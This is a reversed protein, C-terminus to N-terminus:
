EDGGRVSVDLDDVSAVQEGTLFEVAAVKESPTAAEIEEEITEAIAEAGAKTLGSAITVEFREDDDVWLNSGGTAEDFVGSIVVRFNDDGEHHKGAKLQTPMTVLGFCLMAILTAISIAKRRM